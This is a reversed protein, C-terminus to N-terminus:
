GSSQQQRNGFGSYRRPRGYGSRCRAPRFAIAIVRVRNAYGNHAVIEAAKEAIAPVVECTIVAAAGARAAMMALLGTGAGIELVRSTPTVVRRLAADYAANRAHDHVLSFHWQPVARNIFSKVRAALQADDPALALALAARRSV